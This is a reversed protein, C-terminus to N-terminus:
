EYPGQSTKSDRKTWSRVPLGILLIAALIGILWRLRGMLLFAPIGFVLLFRIGLLWIELFVYLLVWLVVSILAVNLARGFVTVVKNPTNSEIGWDYYFLDHLLRRLYLGSEAM